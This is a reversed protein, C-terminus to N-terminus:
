IFDKNVFKIGSFDKNDKKRNGAVGKGDSHFIKTQPMTVYM